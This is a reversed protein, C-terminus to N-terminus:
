SVAPQSPSDAVCSLLWWRGGRGTVEKERSQYDCGVAINRWLGAHVSEGYLRDRLRAQKAWFLFVGRMVHPQSTRLLLANM